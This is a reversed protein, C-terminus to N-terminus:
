ECAHVDHCIGGTVNEGVELLECSVQFDSFRRELYIIIFIYFEGLKYNEYAEYHMFLIFQRFIQLFNMQLFIWSSAIKILDFLSIM